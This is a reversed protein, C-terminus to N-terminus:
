QVAAIDLAVPVPSADRSEKVTVRIYRRYGIVRECESIIECAQIWKPHKVNYNRLDRVRQMDLNGGKRPQFARTAIEVLDASTVDASLESVAEKILQQALKLREDFETRKANDVRVTVLGDFSRFQIYGESGGLDPVDAAVAAATQLKDVLALTERRLAVLRANEAQWKRAIQTSIKHRLKDYPKVYKAPVTQGTPDIYIQADQM